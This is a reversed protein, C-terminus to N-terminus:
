ARADATKGQRYALGVMALFVCGAASTGVLMLIYGPCCLIVTVYAIWYIVYLIYVLGFCVVWAAIYGIPNKKLARFIEGIQFAAGLRGEDAFRCFAVPLPIAGLFLLITGLGMGAFLIIMPIFIGFISATDAREPSPIVMLFSVFYLIFGAMLTILGPLIYVLTIIASYIGDVLLRNEDSWGPMEVKGERIAQRLIRISYGAVILGPLIPILFGALTLGAVLLFRKFSQADRFPFVLVQNFPVGEIHLSM